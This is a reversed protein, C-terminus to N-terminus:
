RIGPQGVEPALPLYLLNELAVPYGAVMLRGQYLTSTSPGDVVKFPLLKKSHSRNLPVAVFDAVIRLEAPELEM